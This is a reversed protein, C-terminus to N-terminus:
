LHAQPSLTPVERRPHLEIVSSSGDELVCIERHWEENLDAGAFLLDNLMELIPNNFSSRSLDFAEDKTYLKKDLLDARLVGGDKMFLRLERKQEDGYEARVVWPVSEHMLHFWLDVDHIGLDYRPNNLHYQEPRVGRRISEVHSVLEPDIHKKLFKVVPNYRELCSQFLLLEREEALRELKLAERSSMTIPKEVLLNFGASLLAQAHCFHYETPSSIITLEPRAGSALLADITQFSIKEGPTTDVIWSAPYLSDYLRGMKGYGVIAIGM